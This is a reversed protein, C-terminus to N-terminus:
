RVRGAQSGVTAAANRRAAVAALAVVSGLALGLALLPGWDHAAGRVEALLTGPWYLTEADAGRELVRAANTFLQFNANNRPVLGPNGRADMHSARAAAEFDPRPRNVAADFDPFHFGPGMAWAMSHLGLQADAPWREYDPFRHRLYAENERLKRAILQEIGTKDLRLTTLGAFATGYKPALDIRSKVLNWAARIESQTALSGDPRRWPLELAAGIPDILNGMGTTVLGKIDLYMYPLYGEFKTSFDRFAAAVSPKMLLGAYPPSPPAPTM